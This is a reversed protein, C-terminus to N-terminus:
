SKTSNYGIAWDEEWFALFVLFLSRFFLFSVKGTTRLKVNFSSNTDFMKDMITSLVRLFQTWKPGM